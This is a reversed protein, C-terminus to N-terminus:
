KLFARGLIDNLRDTIKMDDEVLVKDSLPYINEGDPDLISRAQRDHTVYGGPFSKKILLLM